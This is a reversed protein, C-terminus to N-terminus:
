ARRTIRKVILTAYCGRPLEFALVLKQKGPNIEDNGEEHRLGAPMCLVSREGRSFFVEKFAKLKLQERDIGEKALVADMLAVRPDEAPLTLRASPLPLSTSALEALTGEELGRHVPVEGLALRLDLLQEPRVHERLWRALMRNWLYSQYASVYLGRLEPRLRALAGRYDGEHQLLYDVLSRAHGRPLKDKLV